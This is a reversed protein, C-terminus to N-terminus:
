SLWWSLLSLALAGCLGARWVRCSACSRLMRTRKAEEFIAPRMSTTGAAARPVDMM